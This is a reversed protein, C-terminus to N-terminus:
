SMVIHRFFFFNVYRKLLSSHHLRRLTACLNQDRAVREPTLYLLRLCEDGTRLMDLVSRKEAESQHSSLAAAKHNAVSANFSEVQDQILSVLPSIVITIGLDVLAPIQFTLSKGGGTPMLVFCDRGSLTANIVERQNPRFSHYGFTKQLILLPEDKWTFNTAAWNENGSWSSESPRSASPPSLPILSRQPPPPAAAIPPAVSPPPPLNSFFHSTATTSTLDENFDM